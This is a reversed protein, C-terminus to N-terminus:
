IKVEAFVFDFLDFFVNSVIFYNILDLAYVRM